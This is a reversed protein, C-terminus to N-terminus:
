LVDEDVLLFHSVLMLFSPVILAATHIALLCAALFAVAFAEETYGVVAVAVAVDVEVISVMEDVVVPHHYMDHPAVTVALIQSVEIYCARSLTLLTSVIDLDMWDVLLLRTEDSM